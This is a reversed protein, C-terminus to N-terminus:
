VVLDPNLKFEKKILDDDYESILPFVDNDILSISKDFNMNDMKEKLEENQKELTEIRALLANNKELAEVRALLDPKSELATIRALIDPNGKSPETSPVQKEELAGVRKALEDFNHHTNRRIDMLENGMATFHKNFYIWEEHRSGGVKKFGYFHLQRVFSKIKTSKFLHRMDSCLNNPKHIIFKNTDKLWHINPINQDSVIKFLKKIFIPIGDKSSM